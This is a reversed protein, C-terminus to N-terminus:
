VVSKRDGYDTILTLAGQIEGRTVAAALSTLASAVDVNAQIPKVNDVGRTVM